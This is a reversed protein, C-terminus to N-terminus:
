IPKDSFKDWFFHHTVMKMVLIVVQTTYKKWDFVGMYILNTKDKSIGYIVMDYIIYIVM